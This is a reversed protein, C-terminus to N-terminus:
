FHIGTAKFNIKQILTLVNDPISSSGVAKGPKLKCIEAEIEKSSTPSVFFSNVVPNNLYEFPNKNVNPIKSAIDSGIKAFYHNFKNAIENLGTIERENEVIKIARQNVTKKCHVIQKVGKWIKKGDSACHLFYSNYYQKKSIKLLRNLKNRYLKFKAHYYTSKSKIYKKYINNKNQISKSLAPSIWPKSKLRVEKRSLKKLPVHKDIINSVKGYFIKFLISPDEVSAFENHWNVLQMENLLAQQNFNSFDRKYLPISSPLSDFKDFILFNALHDTLDYVINGSVTFNEISNFFINDILTASHDTFRTPQLIHPQFFNSSLINLYNDTVTHSDLKLLDLNFDGQISCFKTERNIKDTVFNLYEIFNDLNGNPHRYIIGCLLNSHSDNHVEIWLSEYDSTNSSLESRVKYHM